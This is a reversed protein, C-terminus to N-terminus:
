SQRSLPSRTEAPPSGKPMPIIQMTRVLGVVAEVEVGVEEVEGGEVVAEVEVEEEQAEEGEVEM